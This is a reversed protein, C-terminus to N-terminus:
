SKRWNKNSLDIAREALDWADSQAQTYIPMGFPAAAVAKLRAKLDRIEARQRADSDLADKGFKPQAAEYGGVSTRRLWRRTERKM